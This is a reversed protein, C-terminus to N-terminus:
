CRFVLACFGSLLVVVAFNPSVASSAATTVTDKTAGKTGETGKNYANSGAIVVDFDWQTYGRNTADLGDLRSGWLVCKIVTSSLSTKCEPGLNLTPTREFFINFAECGATRDCQKSCNTTGYDQLESYMIYKDSVSSARENAYALTYGSPVPADLASISFNPDQLFALTTDDTPRLGHGYGIPSCKPVGGTPSPATSGSV